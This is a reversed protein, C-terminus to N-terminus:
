IKEEQYLMQEETKRKEKRYVFVINKSKCINKINNFEILVLKKCEMPLLTKDIRFHKSIKEILRNQYKIISKKWVFTYRNTNPEIKTGDVYISKLDIEEENVLLDVFEELFEDM